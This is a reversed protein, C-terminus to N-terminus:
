QETRTPQRTFHTVRPILVVVLESRQADKDSRLPISGVGDFNNTVRQLNIGGVIIADGPRARVRANVERDASVPLSITTAGGQSVVVQQKEMRILDALKLSIDSFVTDDSIDGAITMTVGTQLTATDASGAIWTGNSLVGPSIRSIYNINSGNRFQASTGSLLSIKPQSINNITGQSQLFDILLSLAFRSGRLAMGFGVGNTVAAANGVTLAGSNQNGGFTVGAGNTAIDAANQPFDRWNIGMQSRDNLAVEWIYCDYTILSRSKRIYDLYSSIKEYANKNARFTVLRASRDLLVETAGLSRITNPISELLEYAPPVSTTFQRDMSVNLVGSKYRYYFGSAASLNELVSSFSGRVNHASVMRKSGPSQITSADYSLAIEQGSQDLLTRLVDFLAANTYSFGKVAFQPLPDSDSLEKLLFDDTGGIEVEDVGSSTPGASVWPKKLEALAVEKADLPQASRNPQMSSCGALLIACLLLGQMNSLTNPVKRM